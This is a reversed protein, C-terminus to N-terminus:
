KGKVAPQPVVTQASALRQEEEIGRIMGLIKEAHDVEMGQQKLEMEQFEKGARIIDLVGRSREEQAAAL